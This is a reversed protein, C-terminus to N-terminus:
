TKCPQNRMAEALLILLSYGANMMTSMQRSFVAIDAPSVKAAGGGLLPKSKKKVKSPTIGQKRLTAKVLDANFGEVEGKVKSGRKDTGEYVFYIKEREKAM